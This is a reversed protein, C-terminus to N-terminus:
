LVPEGSLVKVIFKNKGESFTIEGRFSRQFNKRFWLTIEKYNRSMVFNLEGNCDILMAAMDVEPYYVVEKYTCGNKVDEVKPFETASVSTPAMSLIALIFVLVFTTSKM